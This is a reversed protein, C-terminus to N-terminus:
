QTIVTRHNQVVHGLTALLIARFNIPPNYNDMNRVQQYLIITGIKEGNNEISLKLLFRGLHYKLFPLTMKRRYSLSIKVCVSQQRKPTTIERRILLQARTFSVFGYSSQLSILYFCIVHLMFAARSTIIKQACM